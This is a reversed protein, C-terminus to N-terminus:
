QQIPLQREVLFWLYGTGVCDTKVVLIDRWVVGFVLLSLVVARFAAYIVGPTLNSGHTDGSPEM